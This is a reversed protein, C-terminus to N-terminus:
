GKVKMYQLKYKRGVVFMKRRLKKMVFGTAAVTGAIAMTKGDVKDKLYAANFLHLAAYAVGGLMFITGDRVFEFSQRDKPVAYIENYHYRSFYAAVTDQVRTGWQNPLMRIDYYTLYITDKEIKRIMGSIENGSPTFFRIYIGSYLSKVTRGNKKKIVIFDSQSFLLKNFLLICTLLILKPM